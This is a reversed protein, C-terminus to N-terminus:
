QYFSTLSNSLVRLCISDFSNPKTHFKYRKERLKIIEIPKGKIEKPKSKIERELRIVNLHREMKNIM